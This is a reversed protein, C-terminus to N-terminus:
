SPRYHREFYIGAPGEGLVEVALARAAAPVTALSLRTDKVGYVHHAGHATCHGGWSLPVCLPVAWRPDWCWGGARRITQEAVAHHWVVRGRQRCAACAGWKPAKWAAEGPELPRKQRRRRLPRRVKRTPDPVPRLPRPVRQPSPKRALPTKRQLPTRKM